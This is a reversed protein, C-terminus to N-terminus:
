PYCPASARLFRLVYGAGICGHSDRRRLRPPEARAVTSLTYRRMGIAPYLLGVVSQLSCLFCGDRRSLKIVMAGDARHMSM